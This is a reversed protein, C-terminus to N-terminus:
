TPFFIAMSSCLASIEANFGASIGRLSPLTTKGSGSKGVVAVADGTEVVLSVDSIAQLYGRGSSFKKTVGDLQIM